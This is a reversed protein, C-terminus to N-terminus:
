EGGNFFKEIFLVMNNAQIGVVNDDTDLLITLESMDQLTYVVLKTYIYDYDSVDRTAYNGGMLSVVDDLTKIEVDNLKCSKISDGYLVSVGIVTSLDATISTDGLNTVTFGLYSGDINQGGLLLRSQSNYDFYGEDDASEQLNDSYSSIFEISTALTAGMDANYSAEDTYYIRVAEFMDNTPPMGVVYHVDNIKIEPLLSNFTIYNQSLAPETEEIKSSPLVRNCSMLFIVLMLSVILSIRM